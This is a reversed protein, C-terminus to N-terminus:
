DIPVNAKIWLKVKKKVTQMSGTRVDAPIRNYVERARHKFTNHSFDESERIQGLAARRTRYPFNTSLSRFM